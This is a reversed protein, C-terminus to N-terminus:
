STSKKNKLCKEMDEKFDLPVGKGAARWRGTLFDDWDGCATCHPVSSYDGRVQENVVRQRKEGHVISMLSQEKLDGLLHNDSDLDHFVCCASVAGDWRIALDTAYYVCFSDRKVDKDIWEVSGGWDLPSKITVRDAINTWRLRFSEIENHTLATDVIQLTVFPVNSMKQRKLEQLTHANQELSFKRSKPALLEITDDDLSIILSDLGADILRQAIETSLLTGNTSLRVEVDLKEKTYAIRKHIDKCLLPEDILYLNLHTLPLAVLQDVISTFFDFPMTEKPPFPIYERVCHKCHLNCMSTNGLYVTTPDPLIVESM